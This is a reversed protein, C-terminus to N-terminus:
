KRTVNEWFRALNPNRALDRVRCTAFFEVSAEDDLVPVSAREGFGLASGVRHREGIDTALVPLDSHRAVASLRTADAEDILESNPLMRELIGRWFGIDTLVLLTKGDIDAFRVGHVDIPHDPRPFAYTLRETCALTSALDDGEMPRPAVVVQWRGSAFGAALEEEGGCVETTAPAGLRAVLPALELMPGADSFGVAVATRSRDLTRAAATMERQEELIRAAYRAVLEGCENLRISRAEREFLAVGIEAELKQMSRTLTPQTLHLERAAATLTGLRALAEIGELLYTEVM